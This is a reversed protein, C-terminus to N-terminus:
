HPRVHLGIDQNQSTRSLSALEGRSERPKREGCCNRQRTSGACRGVLANRDAHAAEAAHLTKRVIQPGVANIEQDICRMRVSACDGRIGCRSGRFGARWDQSQAPGGPLCSVAVKPDIYGPRFTGHPCQAAARPPNKERHPALLQPREATCWLMMVEDSTHIGDLRREVHWMCGVYERPSRKRVGGVVCKQLRIGDVGDHCLVAPAAGGVALDGGGSGQSDRYEHEFPRGRRITRRSGRDGRSDTPEM